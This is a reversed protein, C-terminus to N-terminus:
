NGSNNNSHLRKETDLVPFPQLFWCVGAKIMVAQESTETRSTERVTILPTTSSM